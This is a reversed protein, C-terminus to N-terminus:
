AFIWAALALDAAAEWCLPNWTSAKLLTCLGKCLEWFEQWFKTGKKGGSEDYLAKWFSHDKFM